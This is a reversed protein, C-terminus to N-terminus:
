LPQALRGSSNVSAIRSKIGALDASSYPRGGHIVAHIRSLNAVGDMPDADLVVLDAKKGVEVSGMTSTTGFFEAPDRTTMQLIRLPSLGAAALEAFERHLSFGPVVWAAGVADTGTLMKAGALDFTKALRLLLEYVARLTARQAASFKRFKNAATTWETITARSMYILNPDDRFEDADCLQQARMRILTPCQWVGIATLDAAFEAADRSDFTDVGRQLLEIDIPKSRNIPNVVLKRVIRSMLRDMLGAPLPLKMSPIKVGPKAAVAEGLGHQDCSCGVLMTVGPGLHEISRFGARAAARVDIGAPLHGLIPIGLRNAEEQADFYPQPAIVAAKVFDAGAAHQERVAAIATASSGANMPTLLAGPMALLDPSDEPMGLTGARRRALLDASGSMQRFGTIGNTLMLGLASAPIPGKDPLPHAHADVYGPVVFRGPADVVVASPDAPASSSVSIDTIVGDRVSVDVAPSRTGDATSVVSVGRLLLPRHPAPSPPMAIV